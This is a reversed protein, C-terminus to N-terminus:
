TEVIRIEHLPMSDESRGYGIHMMRDTVRWARLAVDSHERLLRACLMTVIEEAMYRDDVEAVTRKNHVVLYRM